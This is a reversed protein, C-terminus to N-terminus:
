HVGDPARHRRSWNLIAQRPWVRQYIAPLYEGKDFLRRRTTSRALAGSEGRVDYGVFFFAAGGSEPVSRLYILHPSISRLRPDFFWSASTVGRIRTNLSLLDALRHYSAIWGPENFDYLALPHAHLAVFPRFGATRFSLVWCARLAQWVTGSVIVRRPVGANVEAFEAGIPIFRHTLIAFDKRLADNDFDFYDLGFSTLQADIRSLERPYLGRISGPLALRADHLNFQGLLDGIAYKVYLCAAERSRARLDRYTAVLSANQRSYSNPQEGPKSLAAFRDPAFERTLDPAVRGIEELVGQRTRATDFAPPMENDLSRGADRELTPATM